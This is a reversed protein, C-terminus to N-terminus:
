PVDLQLQELVMAKKGVGGQKTNSFTSLTVAVAEVGAPRSSVSYPLTTAELSVVKYLNKKPCSLPRAGLFRSLM